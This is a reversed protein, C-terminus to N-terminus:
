HLAYKEATAKGWAGKEELIFSFIETGM